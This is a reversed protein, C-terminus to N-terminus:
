SGSEHDLGSVRDSLDPLRCAVPTSTGDPVSQPTRTGDPRAIKDLTIWEAGTLPM